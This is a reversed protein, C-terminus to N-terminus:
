KFMYTYHRANRFTKFHELGTAGLEDTCVRLCASKGITDVLLKCSEVATSIPRCYVVQHRDFAPKVCRGASLLTGM